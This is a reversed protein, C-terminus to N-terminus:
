APHPEITPISAMGLVECALYEAALYELHARRSCEDGPLQNVKLRAAHIAGKLQPERWNLLALLHAQANNLKGLLKLRAHYWHWIESIDFDSNQQPAAREGELVEPQWTQIESHEATDQVIKSKHLDM